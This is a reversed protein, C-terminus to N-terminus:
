SKKFVLIDRMSFPLLSNIPYHKIVQYDDLPSFSIIYPHNGYDWLCSFDGWSVMTQKTDLKYNPNCTELTQGFHWGNFEMGGYIEEPSIQFEETLSDLAQWRIKNRLLYDHTSAVSFVGYSLVLLISIATSFAKTKKRPNFIEEGLSEFIAIILPIFLLLYRDFWFKTSLGGIPLFYLVITVILFIKIAVNISSSNKNHERRKVLSFILCFVLIVSGIVGLSTIAMQFIKLTMRSTITESSYGGLSIPGLGSETLVNGVLPMKKGSLRLLGLVFLCTSSLIFFVFYRIRWNLDRMSSLFFAILFPCLFLGLYILIIAFNNSYILAQKRVSGQSFSDLILNIQNGYLVPKNMTRSLWDQYLIQIIIGLLAPTFAKIFTKIEKEKKFIYACGFALPIILGAQRSLINIYSVLFGILLIRKSNYKLGCVLLYCSLVSLAFFPVDPMFSNSLGFYIPNVAVIVSGLMATSHNGQTNRLLGYTALIGVLGLTLTSLRLATFSFGFPLCFLTGWLAQSLLNTATWDSLKFNGEEILTKVTQGYAWDDNLPFDGIPNVLIVMTIWVFVLFVISNIDNIKARNKLM